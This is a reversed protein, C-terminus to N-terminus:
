EDTKWGTKARLTRWSFETSRERFKQIDMDESLPSVKVSFLQVWYEEEYTSEFLLVAGLYVDEIDQKALYELTGTLSSHYEKEGTDIIYGLNAFMPVSGDNPSLIPGKGSTAETVLDESDIAYVREQIAGENLETGLDILYRVRLNTAVDNGDNTANLTLGEGSYQTATEDDPPGTFNLDEASVIPTHQSSLIKSQRSQITTQRFYLIVLAFTLVVSTIVSYTELADLDWRSKAELSLPIAVILLLILLGVVIYPSRCVNWIKNLVKGM